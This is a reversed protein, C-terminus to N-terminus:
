MDPPILSSFHLVITCELLFTSFSCALPNGGRKQPDPHAPLGATIDNRMGTIDFQPNNARFFCVTMVGVGCEM